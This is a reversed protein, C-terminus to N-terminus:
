LLKIELAVVGYKKIDEITYYQEMDKYNAIEDEKYGISIKDFDKYLQKFNKYRYINKVKVNLIQKNDINVFQINDNILIKQRKEDYLRLEITKSGQKILNFPENYLNMVHTKM